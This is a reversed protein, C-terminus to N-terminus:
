GADDRIVVEQKRLLIRDVIRTIREDAEVARLRVGGVTESVVVGSSGRIIEPLDVDEIVQKALSAIDIRSVIAEIDIGAIVEEIDIQSIVENFDIMAVVKSVILGVLDSVVKSHEHTVERGRAAMQELKTQPWYQEPVLPPRLAFAAFPRVMRKGARGLVIATHGAASAADAAIDVVVSMDYLEPPKAGPEAPTMATRSEDAM